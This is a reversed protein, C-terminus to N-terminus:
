LSTQIYNSKHLNLVIALDPSSTVSLAYTQKRGSRQTPAYVNTSFGLHHHIMQIINGDTHEIAFKATGTPVTTFSAEGNIFGVIYNNIGYINKILM